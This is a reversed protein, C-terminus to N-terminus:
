LRTGFLVVSTAFVLLLVPRITAHSVTSRVSGLNLENHIRNNRELNHAGSTSAKLGQSIGIPVNFSEQVERTPNDPFVSPAVQQIQETVMVTIEDFEEDRLVNANCGPIAEVKMVM